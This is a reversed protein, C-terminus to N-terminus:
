EGTSGDCATDDPFIPRQIREITANQMPAAINTMMAMVRYCGSDAIIVDDVKVDEGERFILSMENQHVRVAGWLNAATVYSETFGHRGDSTRTPRYASLLSLRM